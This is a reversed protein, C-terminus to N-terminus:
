ALPHDEPDNALACLVEHRVHLPHVAGCTVGWGPFHDPLFGGSSCATCDCDLEALCSVGVLTALSATM